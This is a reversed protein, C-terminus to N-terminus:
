LEKKLEELLKKARGSLKTPTKVRYVVYQDGRQRSNPVPIGKERLRVTTGSQTGPKIKLKVSDDITKVNIVDGLSAQSISIDKEVIVDQGQRKFVPDSSAQVIIDFDSFRIRSGTDVGAPVKINREQGQIVAHKTVGHVAEDFTLSIQYSSRRERQSQGSRGGFFQEFIDYPDFGGFDVNQGGMNSSYQYAGGAGQAGPAPGRGGTQTYGAHGVQDYTQRKKVDSLVEYAQNIEKFKKEAGAEKNKDPHWKLALRRYASKIEKADAGNSVGLTKYYDNM